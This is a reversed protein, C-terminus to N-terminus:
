GVFDRSVGDMRYEEERKEEKRGKTRTKGRGVPGAFFAAPPIRKNENEEQKQLTVVFDEVSL